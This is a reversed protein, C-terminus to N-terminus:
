KEDVFCRCNAPEDNDRLWIEANEVTDFKPIAPNFIKDNNENVLIGNKTLYLYEWM